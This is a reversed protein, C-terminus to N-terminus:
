CCISRLIIHLLLQITYTDYITTTFCVQMSAECSKRFVGETGIVGMGDTFDRTLRFPVTEPTALVKGQEFTIGFDIHIVEATKYDVLINQAHRDGIGLM